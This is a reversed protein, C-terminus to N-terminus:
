EADERFGGDRETLALLRVPDRLRLRLRLRLRTLRLRLGRGLVMRIEGDSFERRLGVGDFELWAVGDDRLESSV